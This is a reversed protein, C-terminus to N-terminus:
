EKSLILVLTVLQDANNKKNLESKIDTCIGDFKTYVYM